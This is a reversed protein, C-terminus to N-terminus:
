RDACRREAEPEGISRPFLCATKGLRRQNANSHQLRAIPPAPIKAGATHFSCRSLSRALASRQCRLKALALQAFEAARRFDKLHRELPNALQECAYIGDQPDAVIEQWIEARANTNARRKAM